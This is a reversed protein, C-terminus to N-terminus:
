KQQTQMSSLQKEDSKSLPSQLWPSDKNQLKIKNAKWPCAGLQSLQLLSLFDKMDFLASVNILCFM